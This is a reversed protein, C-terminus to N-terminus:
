KKLGGKELLERLQEVYQQSEKLNQRVKNAYFLAGCMAIIIGIDAVVYLIDLM